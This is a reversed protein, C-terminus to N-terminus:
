QKSYLPHPQIDTSPNRIHLTTECLLVMFEKRMGHIYTHKLKHNHDEHNMPHRLTHSVYPHPLHNPTPDNDSYLSHQHGDNHCTYFHTKSSQHDSDQLNHIYTDVEEKMWKNMWENIINWLDLMPYLCWQIHFKDITYVTYNVHDNVNCMSISVYLNNTSWASIQIM